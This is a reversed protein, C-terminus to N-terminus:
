PASKRSVVGEGDHSRVSGRADALPKVPAGLRATPSNTLNPAVYAVKSLSTYDIDFTYQAMSGM